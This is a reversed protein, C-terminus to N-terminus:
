IQLYLKLIPEWCEFLQVPFSTSYIFLAKTYCVIAFVKKVELEMRSNVAVVFCSGLTFLINLHIYGDLTYRVLIVLIHLSLKFCIYCLAVRNQWTM